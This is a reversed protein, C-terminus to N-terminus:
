ELYAKLRASTKDNRLKELAEKEIQRIRERTVGIERGVEELTRKRGDALGFRLCLIQEERPLLFERLEREVDQRLLVQIAAEEPNLVGTDPIFDEFVSDGDGIPFELSAIPNYTKMVLSISNKTLDSEQAIEEETPDRGLRQFLRDMVSWMIKAQEAIHVPKRILQGTNYIARSLSQRIWWSTYTSFKFGRRYDFKQVATMLGFNGEQILDQLDLGKGQYHRATSVVWRLNAETFQDGAEKGEKKIWRLYGEWDFGGGDSVSERELIHQTISVERLAEETKTLNFPGQGVTQDIVKQYFGKDIAEDFCANGNSELVKQLSYWYPGQLRSSLECVVDAAQVRGQAKTLAKEISAILGGEEVKQALRREGQRDLLEVTGIEQLYMTLAPLGNRQGALSAGMEVEMRAMNPQYRLLHKM